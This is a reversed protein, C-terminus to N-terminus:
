GIGEVIKVKRVRQVRCGDHGYIAHVRQGLKQRSAVQWLSPPRVPIALRGRLPLLNKPVLAAASYEPMGKLVRLCHRQSPLPGFNKLGRPRARYSTLSKSSNMRDPMRREETRALLSSPFTARDVRYHRTSGRKHLRSATGPLVLVSLSFSAPRM